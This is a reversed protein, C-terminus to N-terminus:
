ESGEEETKEEKSEEKTEAKAKEEAEAKTEEQAKETAETETEEKPEEAAEAKVEAEAEKAKKEPLVKELDERTIEEPSVEVVEGKAIIEAVRWRKERSLPRTEIIRVKDGVQCENKEDHAKYKVVRRIIKKYLPHRKPGSVEVVVTKDMRNSVVQGLRVKRKTEEAM